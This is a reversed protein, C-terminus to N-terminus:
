LVGLMRSCIAGPRLAPDSKVLFVEEEDEDAGAEAEAGAEANGEQPQQKGSLAGGDASAAVSAADTSGASAAGKRKGGRLGAMMARTQEYFDQQQPHQPQPQQQMEGWPPLGSASAPYVGQSQLRAFASQLRQQQAQARVFAREMQESRLLAAPVDALDGDSCCL